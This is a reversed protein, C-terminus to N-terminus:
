DETDTNYTFGHSLPPRLKKSHYLKLMHTETSFLQHRSIVSGNDGFRVGYGLLVKSMRLSVTDLNVQPWPCGYLHLNEVMDVHDMKIAWAMLRRPFPVLCRVSIFEICRGSMYVRPLKWSTQLHNFIVAYRCDKIAIKFDQSLKLPM